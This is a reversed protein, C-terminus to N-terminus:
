QKLPNGRSREISYRGANSEMKAVLADSLSVGLVDALRLLYGFVDALEEEIHKRTASDAVAAACQDPELWQFIEALEGLEGTLAMVLNKPTHYREWQRDAAFKRLAETLELISREESM